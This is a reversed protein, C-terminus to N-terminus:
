KGQPIIENHINSIYYLIEINLKHIGAFIFYVMIMYFYCFTSLLFNNFM